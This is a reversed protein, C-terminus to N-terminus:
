PLLVVTMFIAHIIKKQLLYFLLIIYYIYIMHILHFCVFCKSLFLIVIVSLATTCILVYSYFYLMLILNNIDMHCVYMNHM